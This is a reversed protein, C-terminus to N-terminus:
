ILKIVGVAYQLPVSLSRILTGASWTACDDLSTSYKWVYGPVALDLYIMIWTSGSTNFFSTVEIDGLGSWDGTDVVAWDNTVTFVGTTGTAHYWYHHGGFFTSFFCHYTTGIKIMSVNFTSIVGTDFLIIPTSWETFLANLPHSECIKGDDIDEIILHINNFDTPDDNEIFFDGMGLLTGSSPLTSIYEWNIGNHSRAFYQLGNQNPVIHCMLWNLEGSCSPTMGNCKSENLAILRANAFYEIARGTYTVQPIPFFPGTHSASISLIPNVSTYYDKESGMSIFAGSGFSYDKNMTATAETSIATVNTQDLESSYIRIEKIWLATLKFAVSAAESAGIITKKTANTLNDTALPRTDVPTQDSTGDVYIKMGTEDNRKVTSVIVQPTAHEPNFFATNGLTLIYSAATRMQYGVKGDKYYLGYGAQGGFAGNSLIAFPGAANSTPYVTALITQDGTGIGLVGAGLDVYGGDELSIGTYKTGSYKVDGVITGVVGNAVDYIKSTDVGAVMPFFASLTHWYAPSRHWTGDPYKLKLNANTALQTDAYALTEWPSDISGDDGNDGAFVDVYHYSLTNNTVTQTKSTPVYNIVLSEGYLVEESLILTLVSGCWSGSSITFGAITFDTYVASNAESFTLVVKDPTADEVTASILSDWYAAWSFAGGGISKVISKCVDQVVSKVM